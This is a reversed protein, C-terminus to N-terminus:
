QRIVTGTKGELAKKVDSMDTILATKEPSLSCFDIAAQIKPAMTTKPFEGATLHGAAEKVTMESIEQEGETGYSIVVKPVGTIFALLDADLLQALRMAAADKEIVASAGRLVSGRRRVVPIGGGGCAIVVQDADLLARISDIEVIEM